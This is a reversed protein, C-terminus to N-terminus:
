TKPGIFADLAAVAERRAISITNWKSDRHPVGIADCSGRFIQLIDESTNSFFYRPYAYRGGRVRNMVRCGDSHILGRILQKPYRDVIQIQWSMLRIQRQHKMGPGHQPFVCPWHNWYGSIAVCGVAPVVGIRAVATNRVRAIAMRALEILHSYRQDQFIRLRYTRRLRNIYGDGLYLGLLYAYAAEDVATEDCQPCSAARGRERNLAFAPVRGHRWDLVTHRNIGTARSIQCDNWGEAVLSLVRDVEPRSHM